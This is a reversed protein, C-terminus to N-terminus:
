EMANAAYIATMRPKCEDLSRTTVAPAPAMQAMATILREAIADAAVWGDTSPQGAAFIGATSLM